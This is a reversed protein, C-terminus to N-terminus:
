GQGHTQTRPDRPIIANVRFDKVWGYKTAIPVLLERLEDETINWWNWFKIEAPKTEKRNLYKREYGTYGHESIVQHVERSLIKSMDRHDLYIYKDTEPM